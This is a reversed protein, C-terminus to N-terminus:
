SLAFIIDSVADYYVDNNVVIGAISELYDILFGLDESTYEGLQLDLIARAFGERYMERTEEDDTDDFPFWSDFDKLMDNLVSLDYQLDMTVIEIRKRTRM